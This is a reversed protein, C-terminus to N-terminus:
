NVSDKERLFPLSMKPLVPQQHTVNTDPNNRKMM